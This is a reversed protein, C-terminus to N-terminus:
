YICMDLFFFKGDFVFEMIFKICFDMSMCNLYYIWDMYCFWCEFINFYFFWVEFFEINLNVIIFVYCFLGNCM